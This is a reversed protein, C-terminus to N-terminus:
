SLRESAPWPWSTWALMSAGRGPCGGPGPPVIRLGRGLWSLCRYLARQRLRGAIHLADSRGRWGGAAHSIRGWSWRDAGVDFGVYLGVARGVRDRHLLEGVHVRFGVHLVDRGAGRPRREISLDALVDVRVV